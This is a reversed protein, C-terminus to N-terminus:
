SGQRGQGARRQGARGQGARGQRGQGTQGAQGGAKDDLALLCGWCCKFLYTYTQPTASARLSASQSCASM